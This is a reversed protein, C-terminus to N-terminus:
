LSRLMSIVIARELAELEALRASEEKMQLFESEPLYFWAGTECQEGHYDPNARYRVKLRTRPDEGDFTFVKMTGGPRIACRESRRNLREVGRQERYPGGALTQRVDHPFMARVMRACPVGAIDAIRVTRAPGDPDWPTFASEFPEGFSIRGEALLHLDRLTHLVMADPPADDQQSPARSSQYVALTREGGESITHFVGGPEIRVHSGYRWTMDLIRIPAPNVIRIWGPKKVKITATRM